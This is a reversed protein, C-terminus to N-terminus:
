EVMNRLDFEDVDYDVVFIYKILGRLQDMFLLLTGDVSWLTEM